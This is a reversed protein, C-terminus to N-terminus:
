TLMQRLLMMGALMGAISLLVSLLIYLCAISFDGRTILFVVDQSFASFTTFSGLVGIVLFSRMEPEVTWNYDMFKTLSGLAFSGIVNVVLTSFPFGTNIFHGIGSMLVYRFVAGFAGGLAVSFLVNISM